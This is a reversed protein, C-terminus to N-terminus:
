KKDMITKWKGSKYRLYMLLLRVMIEVDIVYCYAVLDMHLVRVLLIAFLTRIGWNTAATIYFGSKTDGAGRLMGGLTWAIMQPIQIVAMIRLCKAALAIVGQDPTFIGILPDAFVYLGVTTLAMVVTGMILTWKLFKQALEPKKAGLSQGTLTTIATQFAFAPMFSLSEASSYLSNAAISATGLTALSSSVLIGSSSMFIRELMAPLSIKFIQRTLEKDPLLAGRGKLSIRYTNSKKFAIVLALIGSVSMGLATAAAAGEVGWGAGPMIFTLGLVTIPRTKNILMFNGVVNIVNMIINLIMPTKTDGYGRFASNLVMSVLMFVRGASVILNYRAAMDLIDPGAGMWLPIMRSLSAVLISIPVGIYLIALFAHRMLHRVRDHDKAGVAHAVMTTLGVGLAMIIGNLLFIPANSISISATAEKGLAGVMATDAFSVLTSFVQEIFVPWALLIITMPVSRSGDTINLPKKSAM